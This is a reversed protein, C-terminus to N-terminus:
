FGELVNAVVHSAFDSSMRELAPDQEEFFSKVDPSIQYESRFIMDNNEYVPKQTKNDLLQVKVHVTVVMTTVEGTTADFIVPATDISLVEGHLTGDASAPDQTIKYKTRSIFERIVSETFRQEVRYVTTDNTFIPIAIANWEAPLHAARGAVHYGCSGSLLLVFIAVAVAAASAAVSLRRRPFREPISQM